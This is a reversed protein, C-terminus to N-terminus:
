FMLLFADGRGLHQGDQMPHEPPRYERGGLVLLAVGGDCPVLHVTHGSRAPLVTQNTAACAQAVPVYQWTSTDLCRLDCLDREIFSAEAGDEPQEGGDCGGLLFLFDGVVTASHGGRPTPRLGRCSPESWCLTSLDLLFLENSCREDWGPQALEGEAVEIPWVTFGGWVAMCGKASLLSASHRFRGRPRSGAPQLRHWAREGLDFLLLADSVKPQELFVPEPAFGEFPEFVTHLGGFILLGERQGGCCVLSGGDSNTPALTDAPAVTNAAEAEPLVPLVAPQAIRPAMCATHAMCAWGDPPPPLEEWTLSDLCLAHADARYVRKGDPKLCGGGVVMMRGASDVSATHQRRATPPTGSTPPSSVWHMPRSTLDLVDLSNSHSSEHRGGFVYLKGAHMCSSHAFTRRPLFAGSSVPAGAAHDSSGRNASSTTSDDVSCATAWAATALGGSGGHLMSWQLRWPLMAPQTRALCRRWDYPPSFSLWPPGPASPLATVDFLGRICLERWCLASADYFARCTCAANAVAGGAARGFAVSNRGSRTVDKQEGSAAGAALYFIRSLLEAPLMELTVRENDESSVCLSLEVDGGPEMIQCEREFDETARNLARIFREVAAKPADPTTSLARLVLNAANVRQPPLSFEATVPPADSEATKSVPAM